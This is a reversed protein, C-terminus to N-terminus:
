PREFGWYPLPWGYPYPYPGRSYPWGYLFYADRARLYEDFRVADIYTRQMYNIVQDPVGQERLKALESAPLPYVARSAEIRKIIAEPAVGDKAMQVIEATTPAPPLPPGFSACAGLLAALAFVPIQLRM